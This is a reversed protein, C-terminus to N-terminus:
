LKVSSIDDVPVYGDIFKKLKPKDDAGPYQGWMDSHMFFLTIPKGIDDRKAFYYCGMGCYIRLYIKGGINNMYRSIMIESEKDVVNNDDVIDRVFIWLELMENCQPTIHGSKLCRQCQENEEVPKILSNHYELGHGYKKCEGCKHGENTHSTKYQCDIVNCQKDQPISDICSQLHTMKLPNNCEVLGHGYKKCEGCQHGDKTHYYPFKCKYVSCYKDM